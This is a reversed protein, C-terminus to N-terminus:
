RPFASFSHIVLSAPPPITMPIEQAKAGEEAPPSEPARLFPTSSPSLLSKQAPAAAPSERSVELIEPHIAIVRSLINDIYNRLQQNCVEQDRLAKMLVESKEKKLGSVEDSNLDGMMEAALSPGDALLLQGQDVTDHLLQARLEDTQNRLHKNESRFATSRRRCTWSRNRLPVGQRPRTKDQRLQDTQETLKELLEEREDIDATAERKFNEFESRLEQKEKELQQNVAKLEDVENQIRSLQLQFDEANEEHKDKEKRISQLEKELVQHRYGMNELELQKEREMRAITEKSRSREEAIKEEWRIEANSYQDELSHIREQLLANDTRLRSREEILGDKEEQCEALRRSLNSMENAINTFELLASDGDSM